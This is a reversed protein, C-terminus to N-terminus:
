CGVYEAIEYLRCISSKGKLRIRNMKEICVPAIRWRSAFGITKAENFYKYIESVTTDRVVKDGYVQYLVRYGSGSKYVSLIVVPSESLSGNYMRYDGRM